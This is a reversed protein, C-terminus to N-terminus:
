KIAIVRLRKYDAYWEGNRYQTPRLAEQVEDLITEVVDKDIGNLFLCINIIM